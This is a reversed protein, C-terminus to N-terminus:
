INRLRSLPSECGAGTKGTVETVIARHCGVKDAILGLTLYISVDASDRRGPM